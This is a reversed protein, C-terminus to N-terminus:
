FIRSEAKPDAPENFRLIQLVRQKLESPSLLEKEGAIKIWSNKPDQNVGLSTRKLSRKIEYKDGDVSFDLIVAGSEAKKALLSEPKQSGLGFLAFEIAMLVTSKGSGIDGEFLSIGRPFEIEEHEYSRINEIIISNLLM